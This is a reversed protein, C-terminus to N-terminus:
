QEKLSKKTLCYKKDDKLQKVLGEVKDFKIEERIFEIFFVKIEYNYFDKNSEVRFIHIEITEEKNNTVTPSFGINCMGFYQKKEIEVKVYYVGTRPIVKFNNLPKINVTPFNITRGYGRGKVINGLLSYERGLMKNVIKINGNSIESRLFTSSITKSNIDKLKDMTHINLNKNKYNNRIFDINGERKHGFGNDYGMVVDTPNLCSIIKDFFDKASIKSLFQDFKLVIVMDIGQKILTQLKEDINDSLFYRTNKCRKLVAIPHPDFTIVITSSQHIYKKSISKMKQFIKQHGLHLGDFSGISIITNNYSLKDLENFTTKITVM